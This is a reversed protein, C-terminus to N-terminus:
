RCVWYRGNWHCHHQRYYSYAMMSAIVAGAILGATYDDGYGWGGGGWGGGWGGHGGWRGGGGGGHWSGRPAGHGHPAALAGTSCLPMNLAAVAAIAFAFQRLM